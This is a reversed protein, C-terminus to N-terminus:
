ELYKEALWRTAWLGAGTGVASFVVALMLGHLSGLWWGIAGGVSMGFYNVMGKM